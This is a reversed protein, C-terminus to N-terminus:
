SEQPLHSKRVNDFSRRAFKAEVGFNLLLGVEIPTAKLYNLLQALHEESIDKAAKLELIVKDEIIIDAKYDGIEQSDYFVKIPYQSEAKLGMKGLEIIMAREYCKELFGYGLVNHVNYFARIIKNTIEKYRLEQNM